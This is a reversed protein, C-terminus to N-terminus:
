QELQGILADELEDGLDSCFLDQVETGNILVKGWEVMPPEPPEMETAPEAPYFIVDTCVVEVGRVYTTVSKHHHPKM